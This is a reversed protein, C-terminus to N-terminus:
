FRFAFGLAVRHMPGSLRDDGLSYRNLHDFRVSHLEYGLRLSWHDTFDIGLAARAHAGLAGDDIIREDEAFPHDSDEQISLEYYGAGGGLLLSCHKALPVRAHLTASLHFLDAHVDDDVREGSPLVINFGSRERFGQVGFHGGLWWEVSGSRAM